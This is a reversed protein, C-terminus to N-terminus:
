PEFETPASGKEFQIADLWVTGTGSVSLIFQNLPNLGPPIIGTLHCRQWERTPVINIDPFVGAGGGGCALRAPRGDGRVHFSLTYDTPQYVQPALKFRIQTGPAMQLCHRGEFPQNTVAMIQAAPGGVRSLLGGTNWLSIYDPWGPLAQDELGPNQFLNKRDRRGEHMLMPSEPVGEEPHGQTNVTLALPAGTAGAAPLAYARVGCPELRDSFAGAQVDMQRDAFWRTVQAASQLAPSRFTVDVPYDRSNACLLVYGGAPNALLAAQADPFRHNEPDMIGPAYSISVAPRPALLSPALQRIQPGLGALTEYSLQHRSPAMYYILGRAGHILALYTQVVQERPLIARKFTRSWFELMPVIFTVQRRQAARRDTMATIGAVFNPTGRQGGGATVFYPDTGLIDFWDTWEDGDPVYSSFNVFSPHYGDLENVRRYLDRGREVMNIRPEVRPEDLGFYGALAPHDMGARVGDLMAEMTRNYRDVFALVQPDDAAIGPTALRPDFAEKFWCSGTSKAGPAPYGTLLDFIYINHRAALDLIAATKAPTAAWDWLQVTNMGAAALDRLVAEQTEPPNNLLGGAYVVGFPFFPKGNNLLVRNVRDIKWELGPKPPRKILDLRCSTLVKGDAQELGLNVQHIGPTLGSLKIPVATVATLATTEGLVQGDADLARIRLNALSAPPLGLACIARAEPEDTYYSRDLYASFIELARMAQPPPTLSQLTEGTAADKLLIRVSRAHIDPTPVEATVTQMAAGTLAVTREILAAAGAAPRDEVALIVQGTQRNYNAIDASVTYTYGTGAANYGGVSAALLRPLLAAQVGEAGLGALRGFREPEHFSALVPAWSSYEQENAVRVHNPDIVPVITNITVNMRAKALDGYGALFDLPIAAEAQWGESTRLAATRWPIVMPTAEQTRARLRAATINACTLLYHFYAAGDTGPDFFVEVSDDAHLADTPKTATHKLQDPAPHTIDFALYICRRDGAIMVRNAKLTRERVKTAGQEDRYLVRGSFNSIVAATSWCADTLVGDIVPAGARCVPIALEPVGSSRETAPDACLGSFTLGGALITALWTIKNQM